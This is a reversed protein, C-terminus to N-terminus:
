LKPCLSILASGVGRGGGGKATTSSNSFTAPRKYHKLSRKRYFLWVTPLILCLLSLDVFSVGLTWFDGIGSRYLDRYYIGFHHWKVDRDLVSMTSGNEFHVGAVLSFIPGWRKDNFFVLEPAGDLKSIAAQCSPALTVPRDEVVGLVGARVLLMCVSMVGSAIAITAFLKGKM